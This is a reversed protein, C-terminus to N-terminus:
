VTYHFQSMESRPCNPVDRQVRAPLHTKPYERLATKRWVMLHNQHFDQANKLSEMKSGKRFDVNKRLVRTEPPERKPTKPLHIQERDLSINVTEIKSRKLISREQRARGFFCFPSFLLILLCRSCVVFIETTQKACVCPSQAVKQSGSNSYRPPGHAFISFNLSHNQSGLLTLRRCARQGGLSKLTAKLLILVFCIVSSKIVLDSLASRSRWGRRIVSSREHRRGRKKM